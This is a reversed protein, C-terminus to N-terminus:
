NSTYKHQIVALVLRKQFDDRFHAIEPVEAKIGYFALAEQLKEDDNREDIGMVNPSAIQKIEKNSEIAFKFADSKGKEKLESGYGEHDVVFLVGEIEKIDFFANVIQFKQGAKFAFNNYEVLNTITTSM